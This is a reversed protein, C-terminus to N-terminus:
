DAAVLAPNMAQHWAAVRARLTLSIAHHAIVHLDEIQEMVDLPALLCVDCLGVMRTAPPQQGTFGVTIAGRQRAFTLARLVNPSGGSGSIGLVVDGPELHNKLQELFIDDYRIDNGYATLLATNDTLALIRLRTAGSDHLGEGLDPASGKGFDCAMHAALAASAGNGFVYVRRGSVCADFLVDVVRAIDGPDIKRLGREVSSLYDSISPHIM